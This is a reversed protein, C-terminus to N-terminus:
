RVFSIRNNEPAVKKKLRCRTKALFNPCYGFGLLLQLMPFCFAPPVKGLRHPVCM